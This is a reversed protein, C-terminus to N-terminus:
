WEPLKRREILKLLATKRELEPLEFSYEIDSRNILAIRAMQQIIVQEPAVFTVNVVRWANRNKAEIIVDRPKIVPFNGILINRESPQTEGWEAFQVIKPNPSYDIWTLIPNSFGGLRGTGKCFTCNPYVLRGTAQDVCHPCKIGGTKEQFIFSPYGTREELLYDLLRIIEQMKLDPEEDWTTVESYIKKDTKINRAILRYYYRRHENHLLPEYDYYEQTVDGGQKYIIKFENQANLSRQIQIEYYSLPITTPKYTWEILIKNPSLGMVLVSIKDFSIENRTSM